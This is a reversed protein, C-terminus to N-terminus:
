QEAPVATDLSKQLSHYQEMVPRLQSVHFTLKDLGDETLQFCFWDFNLRRENPEPLKIHVEGDSLDYAKIEGELETCVIGFLKEFMLQLRKAEALREDQRQKDQAEQEEIKRRVQETSYEVKTIQNSIEDLVKQTCFCIVINAAQGSLLLKREQRNHLLANFFCFAVATVSWSILLSPNRLIIALLTAVGLCILVTTFMSSQRLFKYRVRGDYDCGSVNSYERYWYELEGIKAEILEKKM